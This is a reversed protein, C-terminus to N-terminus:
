AFSNMQSCFSVMPKLTHLISFQTGCLESGIRSPHGSSLPSKWAPSKACAVALAMEGDTTCTPPSSMMSKEMEGSSNMTVVVCLPDVSKKPEKTPDSPVVSNSDSPIKTM